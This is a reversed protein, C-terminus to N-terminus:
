KATTIEKPIQWLVGEVWVFFVPNAGLHRHACIGFTRQQPRNLHVCPWLKICCCGRLLRYSSYQAWVKAGDVIIPLKNRTGAGQSVTQCVERRQKRKDSRSSHMPFKIPFMSVHWASKLNTPFWDWLTKILGVIDKGTLNAIFLAEISDRISVSM